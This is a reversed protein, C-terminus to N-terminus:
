QKLVKILGCFDEVEKTLGLHINLTGVNVKECKRTANAKFANLVKKSSTAGVAVVAHVHNTRVNITLLRWGRIRCTERVALEVASGMEANLKVPEHNLKSQIFKQWKKNPPLYPMQYKNNFEDISGREDGHLWSGYCRFTILYALPIGTENWDEDKM